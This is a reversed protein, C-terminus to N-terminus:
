RGQSLPDLRDRLWDGLMSMSLTTTFIVLGPLVAIWWANILYNRGQGLMLGLSTNPPQVGLGLFSLGTELLVTAPFNLTLQVILASGINPLIHRLYITSQSLELGELAMVYNQQRASIVMGRTLRAYVEWGALGVLLLFIWMGTGAVAMFFLVLIIFPVAAQFDVAAMIVQEIPGRFHAAVLGLLTGVVAGILTGLAAILLSTRLGYLIRSLVDRGIEDTGLVHAWNGGAFVPPQLRALLDTELYDYPALFDASLGLVILTALFVFAAWTSAPMYRMFTKM